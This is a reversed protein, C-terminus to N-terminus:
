PSAVRGGLHGEGGGGRLGVMSLKMSSRRMNLFVSVIMTPDVSSGEMRRRPLPPAVGSVERDDLKMVNFKPAPTGGGQDFCVNISNVFVVGPERIIVQDFCVNISNVFVVGPEGGLEM